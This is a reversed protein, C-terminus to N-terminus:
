AIGMLVTGLECFDAGGDDLHDARLAVTDLDGDGAGNEGDRADVACHVLGIM